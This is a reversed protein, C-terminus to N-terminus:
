DCFLKARWFGSDAAISLTDGAPSGYGANRAIRAPASACSIGAVRHVGAKAGRGRACECGDAGSAPPRTELDAVRKELEQVRELLIRIQETQDPAPPGQGWAIDATLILAACLLLPRHMREM